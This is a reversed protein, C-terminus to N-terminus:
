RGHRAPSHCGTSGRQHSCPGFWGIREMAKEDNMQREEKSLDDRLTVNIRSGLVEQLELMTM